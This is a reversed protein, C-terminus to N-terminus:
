IVSNNILKIFFPLATIHRRRTTPHLLDGNGTILHVRQKLREHTITIMFIWQKTMVGLIYLIHMIYIIIIHITDILM